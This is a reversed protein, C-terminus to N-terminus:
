KKKQLEKIRKANQVSYYNIKGRRDDIQKRDLTVDVVYGKGNEKEKYSKAAIVKNQYKALEKKTKDQPLIGFNYFM